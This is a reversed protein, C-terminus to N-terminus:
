LCNRFDLFINVGSLTPNFFCMSYFAFAMVSPIALWRCLIFAPASLLCWMMVKVIMELNGHVHGHFDQFKEHKHRIHDWVAVTRQGAEARLEPVTYLQWGFYFITAALMCKGLFKVIGM